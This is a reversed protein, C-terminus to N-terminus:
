PGGSLSYTVYADEGVRVFMVTTNVQNGKYEFYGGRPCAAFFWPNVFVPENTMARIEALSHQTPTWHYGYTRGCVHIREPLEAAVHVEPGGDNLIPVYTCSRLLVVSPIAIVLVGILAIGRWSM